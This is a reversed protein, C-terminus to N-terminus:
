RGLSGSGGVIRESAVVRGDLELTLLYMGRPLSQRVTTTGSVASTRAVVRGLMDYVKLVGELRGGADGPSRIVVDLYEGFPVPYATLRFADRLTGDAADPGISTASALNEYIADKLTIGYNVLDFFGLVPILWSCHIGNDFAIARPQMGLDRARQLVRASHVPAILPDGTSYFGALLEVRADAEMAPLDFMRACGFWVGAIESSYGSNGSEGEVSFPSADVPMEALKDNYAVMLATIGGASDGGMFILDEDIRYQQRRSRFFRVAARADHVAAAVPKMPVSPNTMDISEVNIQEHSYVLTDLRYSISAFAYGHRAFFEAISVIYAESRTGSTFGGGHVFVVLPRVLATDGAPEYFDLLLTQETGQVNFASGYAISNTCTVSAFVENKYRISQASSAAPM